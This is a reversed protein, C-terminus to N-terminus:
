CSGEGDYQQLFQALSVAFDTSPPGFDELMATVDLTAVYGFVAVGFRTIPPADPMPLWRWVWELVGAIRLATTLRMKKTPLPLHRQRLIDCLLQQTDVPHNASINYCRRPRPHMAACLLYDCLVDVHVIDSRARVPGSVLTVLQRKKAAALLPPFLLRDGLGFVACPRFITKDGRYAEVLKEAQRKTRGYEGTFTPGISDSERLDPRHEFRYYVAASSIFILRPFGRQNCFEIVQRTTDVNDRQYAHQSGWPSTRGAAHIVVDPTFDLEHLRDLPLARYRASAPFDCRKRRGIGFLSLGERGTFRRMFASGIFGSAGTILIKM